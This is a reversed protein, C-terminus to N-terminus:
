DVTNVSQNRKNEQKMTTSLQEFMVWSMMNRLKLRYHIGSIQQKNAWLQVLGSKEPKLSTELMHTKKVHSWIFCFLGVFRGSVVRRVEFDSMLRWPSWLLTTPTLFVLPTRNQTQRREQSLVQSTKTKFGVSSNSVREPFSFVTLIQRTIKCCSQLRTIIDFVTLM